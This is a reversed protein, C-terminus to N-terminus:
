AARDGLAGGRVLQERLEQEIVSPPVGHERSVRWLGAGGVFRLVWARRTYQNIFFRKPKSASAPPPEPPTDTDRRCDISIVVAQKRKPM